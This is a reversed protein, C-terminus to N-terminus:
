RSDDREQESADARPARPKKSNNINWGRIFTPGSRPPPEAASYDKISEKYDYQVTRLEQGSNIAWARHPPIPAPELKRFQKGAGSNNSSSGRGGRPSQAAPGQPTTASSPSQAMQIALPPSTQYTPSMRSPPPYQSASPPHPLLTPHQPQMPQALFSSQMSIQPQPEHSMYSNHFPRHPGSPYYVSSNASVISSRQQALSPDIPIDTVIPAQKLPRSPRLAPLSPSNRGTDPNNFPVRTPPPPPAQQYYPPHPPAPAIPTGHMAMSPPMHYPPPQSVGTNLFHPPPALGSDMIHRPPGYTNQEVPPGIYHGHGHGHGTHIEYTAQVPPALTMPNEAVSAPPALPMPTDLVQAPSALRIPTDMAPAAPAAGNIPRPVSNRPQANSIEALVNIKYQDEQQAPPAPAVSLFVDRVADYNQVAAKPPVSSRDMASAVSAANVLTGLGHVNSESDNVPQFEVAPEDEVDADTESDNVEEEAVQVLGLTKGRLEEIESAISIDEGCIEDLDCFAALAAAMSDKIPVARAKDEVAYLAMTRSSHLMEGSPTVLVVPKGHLMPEDPKEGDNVSDPMWLGYKPHVKHKAVIEENLDGPKNARCDYGSQLPDYCFALTNPKDLYIGRKTKTAHRSSDNASDRYGIEIDDWVFLPDTWIRSNVEKHEARRIWVMRAGHEDVETHGRPLRPGDTTDSVKFAAGAVKSAVDAGEAGQSDEAAPSPAGSEDHAAAPPKEASLLGQSHKAPLLLPEDDEQPENDQEKLAKESALLGSAGKKLPPQPEAEDEAKRKPGGKAARARLAQERKAAQRAKFDVTDQYADTGPILHPYPIFDGNQFVRIYGNEDTEKQTIARFTWNEDV